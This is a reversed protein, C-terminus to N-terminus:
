GKHLYFHSYSIFLFFLIISYNQLYCFVLFIRNYIWNLCFRFLLFYKLYFNRKYGFANSINYVLFLFYFHSKRTSSRVYICAEYRIIVSLVWFYLFYVGFLASCLCKWKYIHVGFIYELTHEAVICLPMRVFSFELSKTKCNSNDWREYTKYKHMEENYMHELNLYTNLKTLSIFFTKVANPRIVLRKLKKNWDGYQRGFVIYYQSKTLYISKAWSMWQCAM